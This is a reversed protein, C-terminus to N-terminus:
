TFAFGFSERGLFDFLFPVLPQRIKLSQERPKACQGPSMIGMAEALSTGPCMDAAVRTSEINREQAKM